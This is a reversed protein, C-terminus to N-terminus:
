SDSAHLRVLVEACSCCSVFQQSLKRGSDSRSAAHSSFSVNGKETIKYSDHYRLNVVAQANSRSYERKRPTICHRRV